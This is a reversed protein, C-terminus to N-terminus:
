SVAGQTIQMFIDELNGKTETLAYLPLKQVVIYRLLEVQAQEDGNLELEFGLLNSSAETEFPHVVTVNPARELSQAIFTAYAAVARFKVQVRRTSGGLQQLIDNIRGTALMQGREIIGAHTCMESLETLIHSSIIVTKGMRSLEKLLERLEVRARPDLGNAPEDLLLLQPDHVLCRALGLRQKMGHSLATAYADRKSTLDVLSLLDDILATRRPQPIRFAAAYFDLYEWVRMREYIGFGDPLYGVARRIEYHNKSQSLPLGCIYAEGSTPQLLTALIGLTTTKGAGNPGIFGYIAGAEIQFNVQALAKQKGYTKTLDRVEVINTTPKILADSGSELKSKPLTEIM